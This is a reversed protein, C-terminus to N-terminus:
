TIAAADEHPNWVLCLATRIPKLFVLVNVIARVLLRWPDGGGIGLVARWHAPSKANREVGQRSYIELRHPYFLLPRCCRTGDHSEDGIQTDPKATYARGRRLAASQRRMPRVDFRHRVGPM